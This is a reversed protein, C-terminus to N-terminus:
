KITWGWTGRLIFTLFEFVTSKCCLLLLLGIQLPIINWQMRESILWFNLQFLLRLQLHLLQLIFSNNRCSYQTSLFNFSHQMRWQHFIFTFWKPNRTLMFHCLIYNIFSIFNYIEQLLQLPINWCLKCPRILEFGIINHLWPWWDISYSNFVVIISEFHLPM